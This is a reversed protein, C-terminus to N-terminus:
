KRVIIQLVLIFLIKNVLILRVMNMLFKTYAVQDFNPMNHPMPSPETSLFANSASTIQKSKISSNFVTGREILKLGDGVENLELQDNQVFCNNENLMTEALTCVPEKFFVM